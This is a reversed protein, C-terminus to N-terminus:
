GLLMSRAFDTATRVISRPKKPEQQGDDLRQFEPLDANLFANAQEALHEAAASDYIFVGRGQYGGAIMASDFQTAAQPNHKSLLSLLEEREAELRELLHNFQMREAHANDLALELAMQHELSIYRDIEEISPASAHADDFLCGYLADRAQSYASDLVYGRNDRYNPAFVYDMGAFIRRPENIVSSFGGVRSKYAKLAKQGADTDLFEQEHEITGDQYAKAFVTVVAPEVNVQNKGDMGGEAAIAGFKVRPWHGYFGVLSRARIGEQVAESNVIQNVLPINFNRPNGFARFGRDRLNYKIKGTKEGM